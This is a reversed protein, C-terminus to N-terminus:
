KQLYVEDNNNNIDNEELSENININAKNKNLFSYNESRLSPYHGYLMDEIESFQKTNKAIISYIVQEDKVFKIRILKEGDSFNNYEKFLEIENKLKENLKNDLM